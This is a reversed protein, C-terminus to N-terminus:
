DELLWSKLLQAVEEPQDSVAKAVNERLKKREKEEKTLGRSAAVEEELDEDVMYDIAKGPVVEESVTEISRKMMRFLILFLVFVFLILGAYIYTRNQGAAIAAAEAEAIEQELSRDFAINSVTVIDGRNVDYGIAAQVVNEIKDINEQDLDENVVVAVSINEVEGPAYVHREIKENIEYNTIIDSREYQSSEGGDEVNQYQPINTDTGPAGGASPEGQYSESSEEQSRIIGDEGVVPEYEKSEVERQDFDLKAKVQLTYNDPGLVRSLMVKLDQKLGEAFKREVEFQNMTVQGNFVSSDGDMSNTLLNGETDIITVNDTNLNQVSSAVLNAIAQVQSNQLRYGPAIKLLVSAQAPQEDEIFISERPATIQVRAYEVANLDQISRSLEGGVARYFNVRREFDTTGFSSQDFIEFGVAGQAPLGEGAMAIRTQYVVDQPVLITRGENELQYSTDSEELRQVIANADTPDLNSFLVQYQQTGTITVMYILLIIVGVVAAGIIVRAQRSLNGWLEKFQEIFPKLWEFMIFGRELIIAITLILIFQFTYIYFFIKDAAVLVLVPIIRGSTM